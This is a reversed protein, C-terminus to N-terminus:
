VFYNWGLKANIYAEELLDVKPIQILNNNKLEMIIKDCKDKSKKYPQNQLFEDHLQAIDQWQNYQLGAWKVINEIDQLFKHKNYFHKFEFQYVQKSADYQIQNQRVIFDHQDPEQFGIQFFERLVHRPCNPHDESLEFLTLNHLDICEQKISDPLNNFETLTNVDPWSSDRVANYSDRIQNKFFAKLITDLGQRYHINNFKNYTDIELLDNDYGYDGARLLSIQQLPLLDDTDIQISIIKDFVMPKPWFSYHDAYFIKKGTYKKAHSAGKANFPTGVTIGAIKNCVFELYNGHAGGRFDIHIM